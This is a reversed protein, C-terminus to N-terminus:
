QRPEDNDRLRVVKPTAPGPDPQPGTNKPGARYRELTEGFIEALAVAPIGVIVVGDFLGAGGITVSSEGGIVIRKWGPSSTWM